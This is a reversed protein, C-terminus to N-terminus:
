FCSSLKLLLSRGCKSSRRTHTLHLIQFTSQCKLSITIFYWLRFKFSIIKYERTPVPILKNHLKLDEVQLIPISKSVDCIEALIQFHPTNMFTDEETNLTNVKEKNRREGGKNGGEKGPKRRGRLGKMWGEKRGKKRGEKTGEIM